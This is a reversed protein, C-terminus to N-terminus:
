IGFDVWVANHNKDLGVNSFSWFDLSTADDWREIATLGDALQSVWRKQENDLPELLEDLEISTPLGLHAKHMEEIHALVHSLREKDRKSRLEEGPTVREVIAVCVPDDWGLAHTMTGDIEAFDYIVPWGVTPGNDWLLAAVDCDDLTGPHSIVKIVRDAGLAFVDSSAGSTIPRIKKRGVTKRLKSDAEILLTILERSRDSRESM